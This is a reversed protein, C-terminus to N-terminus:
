ESVEVPMGYSDLSYWVDPNIGHEGVMSAFVRLLEGSSEDCGLLVIAGGIGAKAKTGVGLSAAVSGEGTTAANARYGDACASWGKLRDKTIELLNTAQPTLTTM